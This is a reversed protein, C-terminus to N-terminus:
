PKVAERWGEVRVVGHAALGEDTYSCPAGSGWLIRAHDRTFAVVTGIQGHRDCVADGTTLQLMTTM